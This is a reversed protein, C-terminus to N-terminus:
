NHLTITKKLGIDASSAGAMLQIRGPQLEFSHRNMSWQM